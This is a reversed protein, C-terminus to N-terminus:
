ESVEPIHIRLNSEFFIKCNLEIVNRSGPTKSGKTKVTIAIIIIALLVLVLAIQAKAQTKTFPWVCKKSKTSSLSSSRSRKMKKDCQQSEIEEPSKDCVEMKDEKSDKIDKLVEVEIEKVDCTETMKKDCHQVEIDCSSNQEM